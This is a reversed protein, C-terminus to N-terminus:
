IELFGLEPEYSRMINQLVEIPVTYDLLGDAWEKEPLKKLHHFLPNDTEDASSHFGSRVLLQTYFEYQDLLPEVIKVFKSKYAM